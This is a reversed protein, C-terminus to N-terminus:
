SIRKWTAEHIVICHHTWQSTWSWVSSRVEVPRLGTNLDDLLTWGICKRVFIYNRFFYLAWLPLNFFGTIMEQMEITYTSLSIRIDPSGNTVFFYGRRLIRKQGNLASKSIKKKLPPPWLGYKYGGVRPNVTKLKDSFIKSSCNKPPFTRLGSRSVRM